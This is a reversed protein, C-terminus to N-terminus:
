AVRDISRGEHLLKVPIVSSTTIEGSVARGFYSGRTTERAAAASTATTRTKATIPRAEWSSPRVRDPRTVVAQGNTTPTAPPQAPTKRARNAGSDYGAAVISSTL